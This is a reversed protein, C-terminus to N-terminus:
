DCELNYWSAREIDLTTYLNSTAQELDFDKLNIAHYVEYFPKPNSFYEPDNMRYNKQGQMRNADSATWRVKFRM